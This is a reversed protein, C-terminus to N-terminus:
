AQVVLVAFLVLPRPVEHDFTLRPSEAPSKHVLL